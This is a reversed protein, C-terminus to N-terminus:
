DVRPEYERALKILLHRDQAKKNLVSGGIAAGGLAALVMPHIIGLILHPDPHDSIFTFSWGVCFLGLGLQVWRWYKWVKLYIKAREVVSRESDRLKYSM